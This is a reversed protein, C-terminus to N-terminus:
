RTGNQTRWSYDTANSKIANIVTHAYPNVINNVMSFNKYDDFIESIKELNLM